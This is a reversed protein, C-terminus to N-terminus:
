SRRSGPGKRSGALQPLVDRVAAVAASGEGSASVIPKPKLDEPTLGSIDLATRAITILHERAGADPRWGARHMARLGRMTSAAGVLVDSAGDTLIPVSAAVVSEPSPTPRAAPMPAPLPLAVSPAPAHEEHPPAARPTRKGGVKELAQELRGLMSADPFRRGNLWSSLRNEKFGTATVLEDTTRRTQECAICFRVYVVSASEGSPCRYRLSRHSGKKLLAEIRDWRVTTRGKTPTSPHSKPRGQLEALAQAVVDTGVDRQEEDLVKTYKALGVLMAGIAFASYNMQEASRSIFADVCGKTTGILHALRKSTVGGRSRATLMANRVVRHFDEAHADPQQENLQTLDSLPAPFSEGLDRMATVVARRYVSTGFDFDVFQAVAGRHRDIPIEGFRYWRRGHWEHADLTSAVIEPTTDNAACYARFCEAWREDCLNPDAGRLKLRGLHTDLKRHIVPWDGPRKPATEGSLWSAIMSASSVGVVGRLTENTQGPYELCERLLAQTPAFSDPM